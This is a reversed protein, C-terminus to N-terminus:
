GRYPDPKLEAVPGVCSDCIYASYVNSTIQKCDSVSIGNGEMISAPGSITTTAIGGCKVCLHKADEKCGTCMVAFCCLIVILLLINRKM